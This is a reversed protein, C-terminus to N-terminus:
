SLILGNVTFLNNQERIKTVLVWDKIQEVYIQKGLLFSADINALMKFEISSYDTYMRKFVESNYGFAEFKYMFYNAYVVRNNLQTVMIVIGDASLSGYNYVWPIVPCTVNLTNGTRTSLLNSLNLKLLETDLGNYKPNNIWELYQKTTAVYNETGYPSTKSPNGGKLFTNQDVGIIYSRNNFKKDLKYGISTINCEIAENYSDDNLNIRITKEDGVYELIYYANLMRLYELFLEKANALGICDQVNVYSNGTYEGIGSLLNTRSDAIGDSIMWDFYIQDLNLSVLANSSTLRFGIKYEGSPFGYANDSVTTDFQFFPDYQDAGSLDVTNYVINYIHYNLPDTIAIFGGNNIIVKIRKIDRGESDKYKNWNSADSVAKWIQNRVEGIPTSYFAWRDSGGTAKNYSQMFNGGGTGTPFLDKVDILTDGDYYTTLEFIISGIQTRNGFKDYKHELDGTVTTNVNVKATVTSTVTTGTGYNHSWEEEIKDTMGDGYGKLFMENYHKKLKPALYFSIDKINPENIEPEIFKVGVKSFCEKLIGNYSILPFRYKSVEGIVDSNATKTYDLLDTVKLLGYRVKDPEKFAINNYISTTTFMGTKPIYCEELCNYYKSSYNNNSNFGIKELEAFIDVVESTLQVKYSDDSQSVILLRCDVGLPYRQDIKFLCPIFTKNIIYSQISDLHNLTNNNHTTKKIDFSWSGTAFRDKLEDSLEEYELTIVDEEIDLQKYEEGVKVFLEVM